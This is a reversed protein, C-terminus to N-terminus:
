DMGTTINPSSPIPIAKMAWFRPPVTRWAERLKVPAAPPGRRPSKRRAPNKGQALQITLVVAFM